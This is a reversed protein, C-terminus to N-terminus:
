FPLTFSFVSGKGPKSKVWIRGQHAEIIRRTITLGLGSGAPRGRSSDKVQLFEEFIVAQNKRSIGIGNDKVDVRLHDHEMRVEIAIMGDKDPCFKVANSLLNVMVQTLRDQDGTIIPILSPITHHIAIGKAEILQRTGTM